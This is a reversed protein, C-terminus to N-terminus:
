GHRRRPWWPRLGRRFIPIVRAAIYALGAFWWVAVGILLWWHGTATLLLAAIVFLWFLARGAAAERRQAPSQQDTVRRRSAKQQEGNERWHLDPRRQAFKAALFVFARLLFSYGV